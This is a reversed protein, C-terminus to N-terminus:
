VNEMLGGGFSKTMIAGFQTMKARVADNQGRVDDNYGGSQTMRAGFKTM